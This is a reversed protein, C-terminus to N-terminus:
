AVYWFGVERLRLCGCVRCRKPGQEELVRLGLCEVRFLLKWRIKRQGLTVGIYCVTFGCSTLRPSKKTCNPYRRHVGGGQLLPMIPVYFSGSISSDYGNDRIPVIM